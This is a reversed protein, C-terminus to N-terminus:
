GCYHRKQAAQVGLQQLTNKANLISRVQGALESEDAHMCGTGVIISTNDELLVTAHVEHARGCRACQNEQGSGPVPYWRDDPGEEWMRTDEVSLIRVIKLM